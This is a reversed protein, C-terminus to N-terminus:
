FPKKKLYESVALAEGVSNLLNSILEDRNSKTNIFSDFSPINKNKKIISDITEKFAKNEPDNKYLDFLEKGIIKELAKDEIENLTVLEEILKYILNEKKSKDQLFLIELPDNIKSASNKLSYLNKNQTTSSNYKDVANEMAKKSQLKNQIIKKLTEDVIQMTESSTEEDIEINPILLDWQQVSAKLLNNDIIKKRSLDKLKNRQEISLGKSFGSKEYNRYSQRSVGIAKAGEDLSIGTYIRLATLRSAVTLEKRNSNIFDRVKELNELENIKGKILEETSEVIEKVVNFDEVTLRDFRVSQIDIEGDIFFYKAKSIDFKQNKTM